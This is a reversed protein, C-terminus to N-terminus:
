LSSLNLFIFRLSIQLDDQLLLLLCLSVYGFMGMGNPLPFYLLLLLDALESCECYLFFFGYFLLINIM